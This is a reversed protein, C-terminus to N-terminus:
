QRYWLIGVNSLLSLMTPKIYIINTLTNNIMQLYQISYQETHVSFLIIIQLYQIPHQETHVSFLIM